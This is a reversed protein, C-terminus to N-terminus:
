WVPIATDPYKEITGASRTGCMGNKLVLKNKEVVFIIFTLM